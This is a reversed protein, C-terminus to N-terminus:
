RKFKLYKIFYVVKEYLSKNIPRIVIISILLISLFTVSTYLIITMLHTLSPLELQYFKMIFLICFSSLCLLFWLPLTILFDDDTRKKIEDMFVDALRSIALLYIIVMAWGLLSLLFDM